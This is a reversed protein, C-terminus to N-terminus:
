SFALTLFSELEIEHVDHHGTAPASSPARGIYSINARKSMGSHKLLAELRPRVYTWSGQNM